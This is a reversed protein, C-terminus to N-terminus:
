LRPGTLSCYGALSSTPLVKKGTLTQSSIKQVTSGTLQLDPMDSSCTATHLMTFQSTAHALPMESPVVVTQNVRAAQGVLRTPQLLLNSAGSTPRTQSSPVQTVPGTSQM